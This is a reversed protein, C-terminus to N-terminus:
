KIEDIYRRILRLAHAPFVGGDRQPGGHPGSVRVHWGDETRDFHLQRTITVPGRPQNSKTSSEITFGILAGNPARREMIRQM